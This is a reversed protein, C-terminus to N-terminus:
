KFPKLGKKNGIYDIWNDLGEKWLKVFDELVFPHYPLEGSRLTSNCNNYNALKNSFKTFIQFDELYITYVTFRHRQPIGDWVSNLKIVFDMNGTSDEKIVFDFTVETGILGYRHYQKVSPSDDKIVERELKMDSAEVVDHLHDLCEKNLRKYNEQNATM